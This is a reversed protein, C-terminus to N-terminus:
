IIKFYRFEPNKNYNESCEKQFSIDRVYTKISKLKRKFSHPNELQKITDPLYNWAIAARHKFSRHGQETRPRSVVNLSKRLIYSYANKVVLSNIDGLELNYFARHKINLIRSCYFYKLPMWKANILVTEDETDRPLKHILRAARRHILELDKMLYDSCSGWVAMGYLLSPIVTKYYITELTAKPLFSIRRLMKVKSSYSTSVSKVHNAWSLREDIAIGLCVSFSRYEITKDGWVLPKLPGIFARTDLFVADCKGEHFILRNKQCWPQLQDLIVQLAIAVEDTTNGITYITTDDACMCVEDSRINDPLDNVYTIFLRPRLLSGQPVEIKVPKSESSAGDTQTLQSRNALYDMLWIWMDESVGLAKLKEGLIVHDVCDFAKRFDIFLVSVKLGDDLAEKWVETLHLLLSETSHGKRFGWQRDSLLNHTTLHNDFSRCVM